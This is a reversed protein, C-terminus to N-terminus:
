NNNYNTEKSTERPKGGSPDVYINNNFADRPRDGSPDKYINKNGENPDDYKSDMKETEVTENLDHTLRLVTNDNETENTREEDENDVRSLSCFLKKVSSLM